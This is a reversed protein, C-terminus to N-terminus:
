ASPTPTPTRPARPARPSPGDRRTLLSFGAIVVLAGIWGLTSPREDLVIAAIATAAVPEIVTISVATAPALHRLGVGYLFYALGVTLVGLHTIMLIGAIDSATWGIVAILLGPSLILAGLTFQWALARTSGVGADIARRTAM